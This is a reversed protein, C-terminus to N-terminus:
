AKVEAGNKCEYKSLDLCEMPAIGSNGSALNKWFDQHGIGLPSVVGIGTVVAKKNM